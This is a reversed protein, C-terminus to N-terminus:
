DLTPSFMHTEELTPSWPHTPNTGSGFGAPLNTFESSTVLSDNAYSFRAFMTDKAGIVWDGRIDFDNFTETQNRTLNYNHEIDGCAALISPNCNPAPFANLYNVAASNLPITIINGPFPMGTLPNKIQIGESLLESFNTFNSSRMLETPVTVQQSGLPASSRLGQYDGFIFLKNKIIPAGVSGGFMNRHFEPKTTDFYPRADLASNRFFEFATGHIQNTGSRISTDVVAGGARGYEAPAVSTDVRFEQVAEAPPFFIITNVLSENNDFGDLLFNNAQPRLGNVALAAGGSDNYRYTEANGNQGGADSNPVGRTVGPVLTALQTFNRGNLPLETVQPGVVVEGLNSSASEVLPAAATVQVTETVAGTELVVTLPLAQGVELTSM